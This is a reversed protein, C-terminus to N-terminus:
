QLKKNDQNSLLILANNRKQYLKEDNDENSFVSIM